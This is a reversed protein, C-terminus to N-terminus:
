FVQTVSTPSIGYASGSARRSPITRVKALGFPWGIADSARRALRVEADSLIRDRKTEASPASMGQCPNREILGRAVASNCMKRFQAFVRNARIPAGRDIIADLMEAVHSRTIQSLRRDRWRAVIENDLMRKTERWDRTKPKAYREVFLGAVREVKDTEAEREARAAARSAVKLAAPDKGGAM